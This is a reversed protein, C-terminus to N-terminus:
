VILILVLLLPIGALLCPFASAMMKQVTLLMFLDRPWGNMEQEYLHTLLVRDITQVSMM